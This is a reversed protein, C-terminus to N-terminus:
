HNQQIPIQVVFETGRGDISFYDIKGRHKEVIIQYCISMGLGTGKGVPKMTFFPDFIYNKIDESIGTGNDAIAIQVWQSDIAITRIAIQGPNEDREQGTRQLQKEDIADIANNLINLFVQNIQGAYCEVLPLSNSYDKVVKIEPQSYARGGVQLSKANLRHQLIMLTSDLGAHIDTPKLEAEDLCAFTRLSTVIKQIRKVGTEMSNFIKPLDAELFEIDIDRELEQIESAPNEWLQRYLLLLKMLSRTYENAYTLNGYIFNAPNNIEHAIGAVLQGLSSMKEAQILQFQTHKLDTLTKTLTQSREELIANSSELERTRDGIQRLLQNFSTTLSGIEDRTIAPIQVQFDSTQTVRAAIKTLQSIPRVITRSTFYAVISAIVTSLVMSGFVISLRLREASDLARNAAIKQKEIRRQNQELQEALREFNIQTRNLQKTTIASALQQRATDIEAPALNAPQIQQWISEIQKVFLETTQIYDKSLEIIQKDNLPQNTPHQRIFSQMEASMALINATDDRFKSVEFNFWISNGLVTALRQPHSRVELVAVELQHYLVEQQLSRDLQQRASRQYSDGVVLGSATGLLAVGIALAYGCAIKHGIKM